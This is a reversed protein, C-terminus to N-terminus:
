KDFLMPQEHRGQVTRQSVPRSDDRLEMPLPQQAQRKAKQAERRMKLIDKWRVAAGNIMIVTNTM